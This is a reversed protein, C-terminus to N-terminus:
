FSPPPPPASWLIQGALTKDEEAFDSLTDEIGQLGQSYLLTRAAELIREWAQARHHPNASKAQKMLVGLGDAFEINLDEISVAHEESYNQAWLLVGAKLADIGAEFTVTLDQELELLPALERARDWHVELTCEYANEQWSDGYAKLGELMTAQVQQAVGRAGAEITESLLALGEEITEGKAEALEVLAATAYSMLYAVQYSIAIITSM